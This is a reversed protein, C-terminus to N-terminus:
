NGSVGSYLSNNKYYNAMPRRIGTVHGPNKLHIIRKNMGEQIFADRGWAFNYVKAQCFVMENRYHICFGRM